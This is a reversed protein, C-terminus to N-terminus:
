FENIVSGLDELSIAGMKKLQENLQDEDIEGVIGNCLFRQGIIIGISDKGTVFDDRFGFCTLPEGVKIIGMKLANKDYVVIVEYKKDIELLFAVAKEKIVPEGTDFDELVTKVIGKIIEFKQKKTM